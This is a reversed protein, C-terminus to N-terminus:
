RRHVHVVGAELCMETKMDSKGGGIDRTVRYQTHKYTVKHLQTVTYSCPGPEPEQSGAAGRSVEPRYYCQVTPWLSSM